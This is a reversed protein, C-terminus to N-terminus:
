SDKLDLIINSNSEKERRNIDRAVEERDMIRLLEELREKDSGIIVKKSIQPKKRM